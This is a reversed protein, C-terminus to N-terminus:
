QNLAVKERIPFGVKVGSSIAKVVGTTEPFTCPLGLYSRIALFGFAEAEIMDGNFAKEESLIVPMDIQEKILEVMYTNCRGGGCLIIQEPKEPLDKIAKAISYASFATLTAAGDELSLGKVFELSFSNRDLSKPYPALFYPHSLMKDLIPRNIVGARATKGDTDFTGQHHSIMWDDILANGTGTDFSVLSDQAGVMTINAVGGINVLALAGQHGHVLAKHYVPVLPAGQGGLMVDQTRFDYIVPIHLAQSLAVGDGLQLTLKQDPAHTITQGHFGIMDIDSSKLHHEKLFALVADIHFQTVLAEAEKCIQNGRDLQGFASQIIEKQENPYSLYSYPGRAIIKEGDSEVLAVDIGDTSTGSM